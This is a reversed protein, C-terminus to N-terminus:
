AGTQVDAFDVRRVRGRRRELEASDGCGRCRCGVRYQAEGEVRRLELRPIAGSTAHLQEIL